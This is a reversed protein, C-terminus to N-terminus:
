KGEGLAPFTARRYYKFGLRILNFKLYFKEDRDVEDVALPGGDGSEPFARSQRKKTKFLKTKGRGTATAFVRRM